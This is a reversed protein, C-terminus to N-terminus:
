RTLAKLIIRGVVRARVEEALLPSIVRSAFSALAPQRAFLNEVIGRFWNRQLFLPSPSHPYRYAKSGSLVKVRLLSGRVEVVGVLGVMVFPFGFIAVGAFYYELKAPKGQLVNALIM